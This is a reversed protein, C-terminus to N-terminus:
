SPSCSSCGRSCPFFGPEWHTLSQGTLVLARQCATRISSRTHGQSRWVRTVTTKTSLFDDATSSRSAWRLVQAFLIGEFTHPPHCSDPTLIRHSDTPKFGIRHRIMQGHRYIVLDLFRIQEADQKLDVKINVDVTNAFEHFRNLQDLGHDYLGFIDDIFRVLLRPRQPFPLLKEEWRAMYINALSGSYAGGM